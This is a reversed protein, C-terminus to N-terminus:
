VDRRVWNEWVFKYQYTPSHTKVLERCIIGMRMESDRGVKHFQVQINKIRNILGEELLRTLLEYEGGEINVKILDVSEINHKVFFEAVDEIEITEKVPADRYLSSGDDGLAIVEHRRNKGLGLCFVEVRPNKRFREEIKEAFLKVPEFVMLRCNYRAYIDSAWQGKYGGMDIVLSEENLEYDYRFREDGGDSWWRRVEKDYETPFM